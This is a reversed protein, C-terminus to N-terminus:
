EVLGLLEERVKGNSILASNIETDYRQDKGFFDM